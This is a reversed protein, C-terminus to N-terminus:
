KSSLWSGKQQEKNRNNKSKPARQSEEEKKLFSAKSLSFKNDLIKPSDNEFLLDQKDIATQIHVRRRRASVLRHDIAYVNCHPKWWEGHMSFFGEELCLKPSLTKLHPLKEVLQKKVIPPLEGRYGRVPAAALRYSNSLHRSVTAQSLGRSQAIARQSGGYFRFDSACYLFRDGRGMVRAPYDCTHLDIPRVMQSPIKGPDLGQSKIQEIEEQRQRYFSARQLHQAEVETAIINLCSLEDIRIAAIPGLKEIDTLAIAKELSTYFVTVWDGCQLYNHILGSKKAACLLKRIHGASRDLITSAAKLSFKGIGCGKSNGGHSWRSIDFRRALMWVAMQRGFHAFLRVPFRVLDLEKAGARESHWNECLEILWEPAQAPPNQLPNNIWTYPKGTDPHLSPPLVSQHGIWRFELFEDKGDDGITGTKIKRSRIRDWAEVPVSFLCQKRGPRGSTWATTRSFDTLNNEGALQKLLKTASEGDIDIALLGHGLKLGLGTAKGSELEGLIELHDYQTNVWDKHYPRKGSVPVLPWPEPIELLTPLQTAQM